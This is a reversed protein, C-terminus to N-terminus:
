CGNAVSVRLMRAPLSIRRNIVNQRASHSIIREICMTPKRSGAWLLKDKGKEFFVTKSVHSRSVASEIEFVSKFFRIEEGENGTQNENENENRGRKRGGKRTSEATQSRLVSKANGEVAVQVFAIGM